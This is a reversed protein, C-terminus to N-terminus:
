SDTGEPENRTNYFNGSRVHMPVIRRKVGALAGNELM